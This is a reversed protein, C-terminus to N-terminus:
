CRTLNLSSFTTVLAEKTLVSSSSSIFLGVSSNFSRLCLTFSKRCHWFRFVWVCEGAGKSIWVRGPSSEAVLSLLLCLFFLHRHPILYFYVFSCVFVSVFLCMYLDEFYNVTGINRWHFSAVVFCFIFLCCLHVSCWLSLVRPPPPNVLCFCWMLLLILSFLTIIFFFFYLWAALVVFCCASFMLVLVCVVLLVSFMIVFVCFSVFFVCICLYGGFYKCARSYVFCLLLLLFFFMFRSLGQLVMFRTPFRRWNWGRRM